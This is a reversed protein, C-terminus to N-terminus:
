FDQRRLNVAAAYLLATAAAASVALGLLPLQGTRFYQPATM